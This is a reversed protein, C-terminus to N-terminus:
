HEQVEDRQYNHAIMFANREKLLVKLEARLEEKSAMILRM